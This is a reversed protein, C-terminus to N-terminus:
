TTTMCRPTTTSCPGFASSNASGFSCYVFRSSEETGSISGSQSFRRSAARPPYAHDTPRAAGKVGLEGLRTPWTLSLTNKRTEAEPSRRNSALRANDPYQQRPVLVVPSSHGRRRLGDTWWLDDSFPLQDFSPTACCDTMRSRVRWAIRVGIRRGRPGLQWVASFAIADLREDRERSRAHKTKM